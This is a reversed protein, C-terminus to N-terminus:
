QPDGKVGRRRVYIGSQAPQGCEWCPEIDPNIMKPFDVTLHPYLQGWCM